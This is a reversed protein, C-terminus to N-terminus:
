FISSLVNVGPNFKMLVMFNHTIPVTPHYPAKSISPCKEAYPCETHCPGSDELFEDLKVTGDELRSYNLYLFNLWRITCELKEQDTLEQVKQPEPTFMEVYCDIDKKESDLYYRGDLDKGVFSIGHRVDETHRCEGGNKYCNTKPCEKVNGDCLFLCKM